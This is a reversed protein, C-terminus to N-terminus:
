DDDEDVDDEDGGVYGNAQLFELASEGGDLTVPCTEVGTEIWTLIMQELRDCREVRQESLDHLAGPDESLDFLERTPRDKDTSFYFLESDTLVGHLPVRLLAEHEDTAEWLGHATSFFLPERSRRERVEDDLLDPGQLNSANELNLRALLTPALFRNEVREMCRVGAPVGPGAMVFPVRVMEEHVTNSHHIRGHELFAEGHDSTVIIITDDLQGLEDLLATLRGLGADAQAVTADYLTSNYQTDAVLQAPDHSEGKIKRIFTTRWRVPTYGQPKASAFASRFPEKPEYEHPDSLQVYLFFRHDTQARLWPEVEDFVTDAPVWPSEWFTEFGQNFGKDARVLPNATFGATTYGEEQMREPLTDLRQSLYCATYDVLGHEPPSLSTLISATSPWTWPTAAWASDFVVGRQGLADLHPTTPKDYGYTSTRDARLTDVVVVVVNPKDREVRERPIEVHQVIELNAFAAAPDGTSGEVLQTEIVISDHGRLELEQRSWARDRHRLQQGYPMESTHLVNEGDLVRFRVKGKGEGEYASGDFGLAFRMHADPPLLRCDLKVRAPPVMRLAPSPTSDFQARNTPAMTRPVVPHAAHEALVEQRDPETVFTTHIRDVPMLDVPEPDGCAVVFTAISALIFTHKRLMSVLIAPTSRKPAQHTPIPNAKLDKALLIKSTM